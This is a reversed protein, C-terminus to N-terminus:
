GAVLRNYLEQNFGIYLDRGFKLTPARLNGTRGTAKSLIEDKQSDNASFELIKKGSAIFLHDAEALRRWVDQGGITQKKADVEAVVEAGGNNM